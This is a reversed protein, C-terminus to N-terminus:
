RADDVSFGKRFLGAALDEALAARDHATIVHVDAPVHALAKVQAAVAPRDEKGILTVLAPRGTQLKINDKSWAIDGVFLFRQGTALEVYVIQSGVTHGPAKQLVIGPAVSYLGSYDRPVVKELIGPPLEGRELQPSNLQERTMMVQPLVADPQPAAALGGVHDPHEHTFVIASAQRMAKLVREFAAQDAHSGPLKQIASPSMATDIMVSRDPWVVRHAVLVMPHMRFGDGAVVMTRPFAFEGVQEVEIGQPLPGSSTAVRHLADLDIVYEGSAAAATDLLFHKALLCVLFVAVFIWLWRRGRM